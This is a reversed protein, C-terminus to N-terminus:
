CHWDAACPQSGWPCDQIWGQHLGAQIFDVSMKPKLYDFSVLTSETFTKNIQACYVVRRTKNVKIADPFLETHM